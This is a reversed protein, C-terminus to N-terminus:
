HRHSPPSWYYDFKSSRLASNRTPPTKKKHAKQPPNFFTNAPDSSLPEKLGMSSPTVKTRRFVFDTHKIGIINRIDRRGLVVDPKHVVGRQAIKFFNLHNISGAQRQSFMKPALRRSRFGCYLHVILLDYRPQFFQVNGFPHGLIVLRFGNQAMHLLKDFIM